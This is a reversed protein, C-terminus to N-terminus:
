RYLTVNGKHEFPDGNLYRGDLTYIFVGNNLAKGKYTGDWGHQADSSHFILEGWRDYLKFEFSHIGTGRVFLIDNHGDGNPSFADPVFFSFLADVTVTVIDSSRCGNADTVTVVYTTTNLPSAYPSGCNVCSLGTSPSWHYSTGGSASLTTGSGVSISVDSGAHAIPLPNVTVVVSANDSGCSNSVSVSLPTTGTPTLSISATTEGSSWLYNSGGSATLTTSEGACLFTNGSIVAVPLPTVSITISETADCTGDSIIVSYPQTTTPSVTITAGSQGNSWTYTSGGSATLTTSQGECISNTGTLSTNLPPPETLSISNTATCNAGDTVTVTYTGGGLNDYLASAPGGTWQYSYGGTGASASATVSGDTYGNCTPNVPTLTLVPASSANVIHPGSTTICGDGDTVELTYSDASLDTANPGSSPAGNWTYTYPSTGGGVQIGTISGNDEGCSTHTLTMNTVDITAGGTPNVTFPGASVTCGAADTVELTYNAAALGNTDADSSPTGNWEYTLTGTGGSATIGTISGNSAGCTAHTIVINSTNIVPASSGNITFPGVSSNCGAADTVTLTYPNGSLGTIDPGTSPNGNWSYTLTGTGSATIGSIEGNSENCTTHTLSINSVDILPGGSSGVNFPGVTVNCGGGGSVVLTYSGTSVGSLNPGISSNGNWAYTFTGGTVNIGSIGGDNGACTEDSITIGSIDVIPEPNVVVTVPVRFFSPCYGVYYTTNTTLVPTTFTTGMGAATNGFPSTYWSLTGSPPPTGNIVATLTASQNACITDNDIALSYATIVANTTGTGGSTAGNSPFGTFGTSNTTGNAGGNATRTVTGNSIAIYGGGGGGGPGYSPYYLPSAFTGRAFNQNGGNGGNATISIGSITGSSKVLIAGGGGAGGAGDIGSYGTIPPSSNDSNFGNQGNATVTGAGSVTGHSILYIIGGGRGGNGGDGDNQEGAGGGGGMFIRGTSYDLPRGGLGGRVRRFDASWAANGPATTTPNQNADSFTYGGRGGGSSTSNAFGPSELNWATIYGPQSIDPNGTGTWNAPVGGNAGGGGGANHSTAGGGGNAPAGMCYRGDFLDYDSWNGAISEGKEAGEINNPAAYFGAGYTTVNDSNTGGRFGLANASIQGGSNLVTSLETEVSVVGGTSGDWAQGTLVGGSNVTLTTYRPIRVVQTRGSATYNHELGCTFTITTANPVSAVERLENNGCNNYNTVAGWVPSNPLSSIGAGDPTADISAGQLQIILVLDGPALTASFRNNANLGSAAVNISTAGASANASLTTYENVITNASSITRAGDKGRQALGSLSSFLFIGGILLVSFRKM